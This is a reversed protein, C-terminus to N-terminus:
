HINAELIIKLRTEKAHLYAESLILKRIVINKTRMFDKTAKKIQMELLIMIQKRRVTYIKGLDAKSIQNSYDTNILRLKHILLWM